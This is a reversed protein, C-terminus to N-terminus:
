IFGEEVSVLGFVGSFINGMLEALAQTFAPGVDDVVERWNENLFMNMNDGLMKDGNFLNELHINAQGFNLDVHSNKPAIYTLGNKMVQEFDYAFVITHRFQLIRKDPPSSCQGDRSNIYNRQSANLWDFFLYPHVVDPNVRLEPIKFPELPPVNYKKDGNIFHPLAKRANKLACANLQPDDRACPIIYSAVNQTDSTVAALVHKQLDDPEAYPYTIQDPLKKFSDNLVLSAMPSTRKLLNRRALVSPTSADYGTRTPQARSGLVPLDLNSDRDPSSPPTTKGLHNEVRGGRLHPNVEELEVKGIGLRIM